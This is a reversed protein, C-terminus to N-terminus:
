IGDSKKFNKCIIHIPLSVIGVPVLVPLAMGCCGGMIFGALGGGFVDGFSYGYRGGNYGGYITGISACGLILYTHLNIFRSAM